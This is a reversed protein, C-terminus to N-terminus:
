GRPSGALVEALTADLVDLDLPKALLHEVGLAQLMAARDGSTDATLVIVPTPRTAPDARLLRTLDEGGIDPLHLDLILLDFPLQVLSALGRGLTGAQVLRFGAPKATDLLLRLVLQQEPDDEIHLVNLPKAEM